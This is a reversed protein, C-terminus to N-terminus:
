KFLFVNAIRKLHKHNDLVKNAVAYKLGMKLAKKAIKIKLSM